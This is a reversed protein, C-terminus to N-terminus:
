RCPTAAPRVAASKQRTYRPSPCSTDAGAPASGCVSTPGCRCRLRARCDPRAPAHKGAQPDNPTRRHSRSCRARRHGTSDWSRDNARPPKDAILQVRASLLRLGIELPLRRLHGPAPARTADGPPAQRAGVRIQMSPRAIQRSSRETRAGPQPLRPFDSHASSPSGARDKKRLRQQCNRGCFFVHRIPQGLVSRSLPLTGPSNKQSRLCRM